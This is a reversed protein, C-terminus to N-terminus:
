ATKRRTTAKRKTAATEPIVPTEVHTAMRTRILVLAEDDPLDIVEGPTPWPEGNYSSSMQHTMQIRM